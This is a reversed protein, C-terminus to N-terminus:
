IIGVFWAEKFSLCGRWTTRILDFKPDKSGILCAVETLMNNGNTNSKLTLVGLYRKWPYLKKM